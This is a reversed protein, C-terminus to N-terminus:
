PVPQAEPMTWSGDLIPKRPRYLRVTYNWGPAIPLCNPTASDCGGFQITISRDADAKATQNNLSYADLANKEFFGQANYVSVSWFGDVPVDKVILRHVTKGDNAKPTTSPYVAAAPPNGGWGRATGILHAIPDVEEKRGFTKAGFGGLSGLAELANRAKTQSAADWNPVEFRGRAAQEVRIADQGRQAALVDARDQANALTRIIALMYRTGVQARDFTYRGPAYVVDGTYHDESVVQLSMFRQGSDPLTITVPAADLDFVGSSYLTDRNMRVVGQRDVPTPERAHRLQGFAGNGVARAFYMDTEARVFNGAHVPVPADNAAAVALASACLAAAVIWNRRM